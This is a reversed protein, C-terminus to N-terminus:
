KAREVFRDLVRKDGAHDFAIDLKDDEARTVTGM